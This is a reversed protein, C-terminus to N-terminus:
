QTPPTRFGILWFVGDNGTKESLDKIVYKRASSDGSLLAEQAHFQSLRGGHKWRHRHYSRHNAGGHERTAM